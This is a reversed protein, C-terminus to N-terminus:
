GKIRQAAIKEGTKYHEDRLALEAEEKEEETWFGLEYGCWPEKPSLSPLGLKEWNAKAKEMFQQLQKLNEKEQRSNKFVYLLEGMVIPCLGVLKTSHMINRAANDGHMFM